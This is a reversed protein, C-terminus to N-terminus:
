SDATRTGTGVPESSRVYGLLPTARVRAQAGQPAATRENALWATVSRRKGNDVAIYTSFRDRESFPRIISAYRIVAAPRRARVVFGIRERTAVSDVVGAVVAWTAWLIPIWCLVALVDAISKILDIQGPAKQLLSTLAEGEAVRDLFAQVWRAALFVVIGAVGVRWPHQGYGPRIPYRVRVLHPADGAESWASRHDEPAVPLEDLIHTAVGMVAAHALTVQQSANALVTADTPIRAALRRRYGLWSASRDVGADTPLQAAGVAREITRWGLLCAGVFVGLWVTRSKWSEAIDVQTGNRIALLCAIIAIAACVASAAVTTAGYRRKTFGLDVSQQAVNRAFRLRWRWDLRHHSLELTGASSVGNFARAAVHNLVQQEFPKLADGSAGAGTTVVVLEDDVTALTIWRRAALDLVTATVASIPVDFGNTLLAVVAPPEIGHAGLPLPRHDSEGVGTRPRTSREAWAHLGGGLLAFLAAIVLMSTDPRDPLGILDIAGVGSTLVGFMAAMM